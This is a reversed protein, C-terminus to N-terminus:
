GRADDRGADEPDEFSDGAPDGAWPDPVDAPGSGEEPPDDVDGAHDSGPGAEARLAELAERAQHLRARHHRVDGEALMMTRRAEVLEDRPTDASVELVRVARRRSRLLEEAQSLEGSHYTKRAKQRVMKRRREEQETVPIGFLRCVDEVLWQLLWRM